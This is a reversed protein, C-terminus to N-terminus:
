GTPDSSVLFLLLLQETKDGEGLKDVYVITNETTFNFTRPVKQLKSNTIKCQITQM